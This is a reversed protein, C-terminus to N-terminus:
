KLTVRSRTRASRAEAQLVRSVSLAEDLTATTTTRMRAVADLMHRIEGDYGSAAPVAIAEPEGARYLVLPEDRSVDFDATAHEFGVVFRMRFPWGPSQDWGGEALLHAPGRETEYLTSVHHESGASAVSRISGFCWQVFDVDHIHLDFLAAGSRAMDDYFDGAWTPRTGLRQFTASRVAGLSGDDIRAKLWAWAPWFRMCMAPMCLKGSRAQERALAEIAVPDLAVPKEVLVHKGAQLATIALPVHTDTHTCISVLEIDSDRLLREPDDYVRVSTPDFLREDRVPKINGSATARGTLRDQNHDAVAVVRCPFGAKEAATYARLHTQGMFGMGVVGVRIPRKPLDARPQLPSFAMPWVHQELLRRAKVVDAVRSHGAEREIVLDLKRPADQVVKLFQEWDVEGEGAPVEAGWADAASSGVADKIHVQVLHPLLARVAAVPNGMGYLIMNAPDFNVGINPRNLEKLVGLLTEASEQGTELGLRVGHAGFVDALARLRQVMTKRENDGSDHPLFGAHFTVLPLGLDAALRANAEAAELNRNWHESLRVGGTRRITELTTYDEGEFAMMGSLLRLHGADRDRRIQEVWDPAQRLPDLAIQVCSLAAANLRDRLQAPGSAQLSWSCVGIRGIM